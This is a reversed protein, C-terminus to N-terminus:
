IEMQFGSFHLLTFKFLSFTLYIFLSYVFQLCLSFSSVNLAFNPKTSKYLNPKTSKYLNEQIIGHFNEFQQVDVTEKVIDINPTISKPSKQLDIISYATHWIKVKKFLKKCYVQVKAMCRFLFPQFCLGFFIQSKHGMIKKSM